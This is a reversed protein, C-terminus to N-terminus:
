LQGSSSSTARVLGNAREGLAGNLIGALRAGAKQLQQAVIPWKTEVYATDVVQDPKLFAHRKALALGENAYAETSTVQQWAKARGPKM